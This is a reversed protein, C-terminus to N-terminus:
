VVSFKKFLFNYQEVDGNIMNRDADVLVTLFRLSKEGEISIMKKTFFNYIIFNSVINSAILLMIIVLIIYSHISWCKQNQTLQNLSTSYTKDKSRDHLLVLNSKGDIVM